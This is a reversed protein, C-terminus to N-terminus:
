SGPPNQGTERALTQALERYDGAADLRGEPEHEKIAAEIIEGALPTALVKCEQCDNGVPPGHMRDELYYKVSRREEGLTEVGCLAAAIRRVFIHLVRDLDQATEEFYVVTPDVCIAKYLRNLIRTALRQQSRGLDWDFVWDSVGLDPDIALIDSVRYWLHDGDRGSREEDIFEFSYGNGEEDSDSEALLDLALVRRPFVDPSSFHKRPLKIAM